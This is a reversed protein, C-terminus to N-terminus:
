PQLELDITAAVLVNDSTVGSIVVRIDAPQTLDEIIPLLGLVNGLKNNECTELINEETGYIFNNTISEWNDDASQYINVSYDGDFVIPSDSINQINLFMMIGNVYTTNPSYEELRIFTNVNEPQIDLGTFIDEKSGCAQTILAFVSLIIMTKWLNNKM